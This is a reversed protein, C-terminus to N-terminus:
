IRLVLPLLSLSPRRARSSQCVRRFTRCSSCSGTRCPCGMCIGARTRLRRLLDDRRGTATSPASPGMVGACEQDSRAGDPRLALPGHLCCRIQSPLLRDLCRLLLSGRRTRAEPVPRSAGALHRCCLLRCRLEATFSKPRPPLTLPACHGSRGGQGSDWAGIPRCRARHGIM